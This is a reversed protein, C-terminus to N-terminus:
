PKEIMTTIHNGKEIVQKEKLWGIAFKLYNAFVMFAHFKPFGANDKKIEFDGLM